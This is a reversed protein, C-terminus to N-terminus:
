KGKVIVDSIADFVADQNECMVLLVTGDELTELRANVAIEYQDALYQEFSQKQNDVFARLGELVADEKGAAPYVAAVAYAKVNMLSVSLAYASMDEPTVGLLAFVMEADDEEASTLIRQVQNTEADRAATIATKYLETREEPTLTKETSKKATCGTLALALILAMATLSKM